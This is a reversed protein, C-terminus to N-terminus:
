FVTPLVFVNKFELGKSKHITMISVSNAPMDSSSEVVHPTIGSNDFAEKFPAAQQDTSHCLVVFDDATWGSQIARSIFGAITSAEAERDECHLHKVKDGEPNDTFIKKERRDPNFDILARSTNVIQRTSRYNHGLSIVKPNLHNKEFNLINQINAGRWGYIGQDDDGVVRLNQHRESLAKIIKYQVQDTDQYEDVFILDFKEQWKKKVEPVDRFLLYTLLQVRTYPSDDDALHEYKKLTDVYIGEMQPDLMYERADSSNINSEEYPTIFPLVDDPEPFHHHQIYDIEARIRESKLRLLEKVTPEQDYEIRLPELDANVVSGCFSHFTSIWINNSLENEIIDSVRNKLEDKAKRTFTFAAIRNPVVKLVEIAYAISHAVTRTKGSGPGAIILLPGTEHTAAERQSPNLRKLLKSM